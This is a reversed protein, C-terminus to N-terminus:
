RKRKSGKLTQSNKADNYEAVQRRVYNLDFILDEDYDQRTLLEDKLAILEDLNSNYALCYCCIDNYLDCWKVDAVFYQLKPDEDDCFVKQKLSMQGISADRRKSTKSKDSSSSPQPASMPIPQGRCKREKREKQNIICEVNEAVTTVKSQLTQVTKTLALVRGYVNQPTVDSVSNKINSSDETDHNPLTELLTGTLGLINDVELHFQDSDIIKM